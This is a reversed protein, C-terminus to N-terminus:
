RLGLHSSLLQKVAAIANRGLRGILEASTTEVTAIKATRIVSPIPLGAGARDAIAMDGPWSPREASTIMVAWILLGDPGIPEDTVILAPRYRRKNTEVHPFPVRVVHGAEFRMM